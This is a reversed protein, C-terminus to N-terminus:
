RRDIALKIADKSLVINNNIKVKETKEAKEEM